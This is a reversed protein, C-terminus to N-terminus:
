RSTSGDDGGSSSSDPVQSVHVESAPTPTPTPVPVQVVSQRGRAETDRRGGQVVKRGFQGTTGRVRDGSNSRRTDDAM